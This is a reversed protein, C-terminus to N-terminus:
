HRGAAHGGGHRRKQDRGALISEQRQLFPTPPSFDIPFNVPFWHFGHNKVM